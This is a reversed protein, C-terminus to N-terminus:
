DADHFATDRERSTSPLLVAVLLLAAAALLGASLPHSVFTGWDGQSLALAGRLQGEMSPGLVFGLLLPVLDCGLQRLVYGAAAFGAMLGVDFASGRLAYVGICCLLTVAAFVHRYPVTLLRIWVGILPVNLMLLMTQAIGMSAILGWWLSPQSGILQPGPQIGKILLAGMVLAMVANLPIGLALL